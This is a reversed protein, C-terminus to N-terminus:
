KKVHCKCHGWSKGGGKLGDEMWLLGGGYWSASYGKCDADKDCMERIASERGSGVWKHKPDAGDKTCKGSGKNEYEAASTAPKPAPPAPAPAAAAAGKAVSGIKVTCRCINWSAGGGKLNGEKWLYGGVKGHTGRWAVSYGKCSEDNTCKMRLTTEDGENIRESKPEKGDATLCLGYGEQTQYKVDELKQMCNGRNWEEGGGTVPKETKFMLAGRKCGKGSVIWGKCKTDKDCMQQALEGQVGHETEHGDEMKCKGAGLDKYGYVTYAPYRAMLEVVDSASAPAFHRKKSLELVAVVAAVALTGLLAARRVKFSVGACSAVREKAEAVVLPEAECGNVQLSLGTLEKDSTAITLTM